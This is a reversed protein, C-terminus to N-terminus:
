PKDALSQQVNALDLRGIGRYYKALLAHVPRHDGNRRLADELLNLGQETRGVRLAIEAAELCPGLDPTQPGILRMLENLRKLDRQLTELKKELEAAESGKGQIRLARVLGHLAEVDASEALWAKRLYPEAAAGDGGELLIKGKLGMALNSQPNLALVKDVLEGAQPGNAEAALCEALGLLAEEDDPFRELVWQLHPKANVPNKQRLQLRAFAVRADRDDPALELAKTYFELAQDMQVMRECVRGGLLWAWPAGGDVARWLACAQRADACREAQMYGRALAELVLTVEPHDPGVTARLRKDTDGILGQQVLMLDRELRVKDKSGGQDEYAALYRKAEPFKGLRRATRAALFLGDLDRPKLATFQDLSAMAGRPDHNRISEQAEQWLRHVRYHDYGLWALVCAAVLAVGALLFSLLRRTSWPRGGNLVDTNLGDAMLM